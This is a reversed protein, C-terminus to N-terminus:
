TEEELNLSPEFGPQVTNNIIVRSGNKLKMQGTTVVVDGEKLGQKIAVQDGRREGTQVFVQKVVKIEEQNKGKTKKKKTTKNMNKSDNKGAATDEDLVIFVIDGYPNYVIASQPLTLFKETTGISVTVNGFTGPYLLYEPNQITAEVQVNRTKSDVQPSITTITGYFEKNPFTNTTLTVTSDLKIRHIYQQPLYFDVYIPDLSQLTVIQDGPNLYQGLNVLNIGLRGAFPATIHKKAIITKQQEVQAAASLMQANSADLTAKPTAGKSYLEQDREYTIKALDYNAELSALQAKETDSNLELLLDDKAVTSGPKFYINRVLGAIETTVNVGQVARLSGAAKYEPLWEQYQVKMASVTAPQQSASQLYQMIFHNVVAKYLFILGFFIILAAILIIMNKRPMYTMLQKKTESQNFAQIKTKTYDSAKQYHPETFGKIKQYRPSFWNSIKHYIPAFWNSFRQYVPAFWASLKHFGKSIKLKSDLWLFIKQFRLKGQALMTKISTSLNPKTNDPM